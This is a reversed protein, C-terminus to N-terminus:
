YYKAAHKEFALRQAKEYGVDNFLVAVLEAKSYGAEMGQRYAKLSKIRKKEASMYKYIACAMTFELILDDKLNPYM